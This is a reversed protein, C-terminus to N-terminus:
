HLNKPLLILTLNVFGIFTAVEREGAIFLIVTAGLLIWYALSWGNM